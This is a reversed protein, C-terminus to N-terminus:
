AQAPSDGAGAHGDPQPGRFEPLCWAAGVALVFACISM